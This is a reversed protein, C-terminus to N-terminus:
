LLLTVHATCCTPTYAMSVTLWWNELISIRKAVSMLCGVYFKSFCDLLGIGRFEKMNKPVNKKNLFILTMILWSKMTEVTQGRLRANFAFLM